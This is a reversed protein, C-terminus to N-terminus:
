GFGCRTSEEEAHGAFNKHRPGSFICPSLFYKVIRLRTRMIAIRLRSRM